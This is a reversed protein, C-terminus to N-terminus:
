RIAYYSQVSTKVTSHLLMYYILIRGATREHSSIWEAKKMGLRILMWFRMKTALKVWRVATNIPAFSVRELHNFKPFQNLIKLTQILWCNVARKTNRSDV